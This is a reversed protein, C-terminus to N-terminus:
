DATDAAGDSGPDDPVTEWALRPYGEGKRVCWTDDGGNATEGVFDWGAGLYTALDCMESTTKGQGGNSATCGTTELDWFCDLVDGQENLALLGHAVVGTRTSVSGAAFCCAILGPAGGTCYCSPANRAALGGVLFDGCVEALSYCDAIVGGRSRGVLGGVEDVGNVAGGSHSRRVEAVINDGVLGGVYRYGQVIWTANSDTVVACDNEGVLGGMAWGSSDPVGTVYGTAHCRTVTGLYNEGVLGGVQAVGTVAGHATCDAVTGGESRGILGGVFNFGIATGDRVHCDSVTGAHLYGVLPAVYRGFDSSVNPEALTLHTIRAQGGQVWGFLGVYSEVVVAYDFHRITRDNGDLVGTFPGDSVTGISKVPEGTYDALDIDATLLFHRGWDSPESGIAALHEATAILYPEAATGNGGGYAGLARMALFAALLFAFVIQGFGGGAGNRMIFSWHIV